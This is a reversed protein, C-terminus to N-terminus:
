PEAFEASDGGGSEAGCLAPKPTGPRGSLCCGPRCRDPAPGRTGLAPRQPAATQREALLDAIMGIYAPHTGVTQARVMTMGLADAAARADIDLDEIVEMHDCVFGIPAVVASRQGADRQMELAEEVTPSLWPDSGRVNRSQFALSWDGAGARGAVLRCAEALQAQYDSAEAMALPLSHATFILAAGEEAEDRAASVREAMAAIFGPHNYGSRLKDIVPAGAVGACAEHLNERYQRCGSYCSFLSTVHAAARRVGDDAMRQVAGALFPKWNRNGWYIPLTRGRAKLEAKLALILNRTQGNIPSIGDRKLYREAIQAKAQPPVPRGALVRDLFPLVDDPGEPGGFSVVLVADYSRAADDFLDSM